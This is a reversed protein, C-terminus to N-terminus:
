LLFLFALLGIGLTWGEFTRLDLPEYVPNKDKLTFALNVIM